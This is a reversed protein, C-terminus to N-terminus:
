CIIEIIDNILTNSVLFGNPTLRTGNKDTEILGKFRKSKLKNIQEKGIEVGYKERLGDFNLGDTLRLKLMVYEELTGGDGDYKPTTGKIFEDIDSPYYFRKGDVFSHAAPGIGLYEECNWYKLNHRSEFGKKALNSVEYQEFGFKKLEDITHLYMQCVTDEDPLNLTAFNKEFFTGPEISLMYFSIHKVDAKEIFELSEDLTELTQEPIGLMLDLSINDIGNEKAAQVAHSVAQKDARRGLKKREKEVASQMGLSIRNVGAQSLLPFIEDVDDSPNVEVTIEADPTVDFNEKVARIIRKLRKGGLFSPTGGGLYVSDVAKSPYEDAMDGIESILSATYEDAKDAANTLSYFDCYPCKSKCFPIHLYIGLLAKM